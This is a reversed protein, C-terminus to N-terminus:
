EGSNPPAPKDKEPNATPVTKKNRPFFILIIFIFVMFFTTASVLLPMGGSSGAPPATEGRVAKVAAQKANGPVLPIQFVEGATPVALYMTGCNEGYARVMYFGKAPNVNMKEYIVVVNDPPSFTTGSLKEPYEGMASFYTQLANRANLVADRADACPDSEAALGSVAMALLLATTFCCILIRKRM